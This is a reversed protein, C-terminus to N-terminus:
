EEVRFTGYVNLDMPVGLVAASSAAMTPSRKTDCFSGTTREALLHVLKTGHQPADSTRGASRTM